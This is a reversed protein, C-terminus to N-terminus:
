ERNFRFTPNFGIPEDLLTQKTVPFFIQIINDTFIDFKSPIEIFFFELRKKKNFIM